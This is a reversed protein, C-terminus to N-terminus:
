AEKQKRALGHRAPDALRLTQSAMIAFTEVPDRAVKFLPMRIEIAGTYRWSGPEQLARYATLGCAFEYAYIDHHGHVDVKM